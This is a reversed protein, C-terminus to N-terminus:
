RDSSGGALANRTAAIGALSFALVHQVLEDLREEPPALRPHLREILPQAQYYYLIQGAISSSCNVIATLDAGEGLLAAVIDRLEDVDGGIYDRVIRDLVETPRAMEMLYMASLQTCDPGNEDCYFLEQFFARICSELRQEAPASRPLFATRSAHLTEFVADFIAAYLSKKDGFYYNVAAVNAGARRCIERVTASEFGRESFVEIAARLLRDRTDLTSGAKM